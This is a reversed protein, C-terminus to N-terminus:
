ELATSPWLCCYYYCCCYDLETKGCSSKKWRVIHLVIERIHFPANSIFSKIIAVLIIGGDRLFIQETQKINYDSPVIRNSSCLNM